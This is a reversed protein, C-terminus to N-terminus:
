YMAYLGAFLKGGVTHLVDVEGMGGLIMSANLFADIWSLGELYHYGAMGVALSYAFLALTVLFWRWMRQGFAIRSIVPHSPREFM